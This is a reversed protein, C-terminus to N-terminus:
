LLISKEPPFLERARALSFPDGIDVWDPGVPLHVVTEGSSLMRSLLKTMQVSEGPAVYRLAVPSFTNVGACVLASISPKEELFAVTSDPTDKIRGYPTAYRFHASGIVATAGRSKLADLMDSIPPDCLVDGNMSVVTENESHCGMTGMWGATGLPKEEHLWSVRVGWRKGGMAYGGVYDRIKRSMHHTAIYIDLVGSERFAEVQRELITKGGVDVLCKPTDKTLPWLRSGNGGAVIVGVAETEM